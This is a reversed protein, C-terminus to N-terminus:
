TPWRRTSTATLRMFWEVGSGKQFGAFALYPLGATAAWNIKEARSRALKLLEALTAVGLKPSVAIALFNDSSAAIPM